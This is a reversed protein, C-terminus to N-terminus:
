CIFVCFIGSNNLTLLRVPSRVYLRHTGTHMNAQTNHPDLEYIRHTTFHALAPFLSIRLYFFFRSFHLIFLIMQITKVKKERNREKQAETKKRLYEAYIM